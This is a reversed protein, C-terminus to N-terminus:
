QQEDESEYRYTKALVSFSLREAGESDPQAGRRNNAASRAPEIKFDHLTVIRPLGSIRSVFDAIQHYSGTALIQIPKEIYFEQKVEDLYKHSLLEVGAGTAAYSIEDLLGPIETNRPLQQLLGKFTEQMEAMQDRYAQLNAAKKYKTKFEEILQTEKVQASELASVQDKTDLYYGLGLVVLMVAVIVFIKGPLPWSGINNFDQYQSLDAM